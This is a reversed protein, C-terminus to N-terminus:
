AKSAKLIVVSISTGSFENSYVRSWECRMGPLVDKGKASAPLVAVLCGSAKIMTAAHTIHAQWRGESYPPNMVIKDFPEAAYQLFDCEIVDHGKAELVKCHLPSIEVCVTQDQPMLDAIAGQGANPELCLEGPQIDAMEVADLAISEPTPYYQHSVRDPICGSVIIENIIDRANYSFQYKRDVWGGGVYEIVKVAQDTAAKNDNGYPLSCSLEGRTWNLGSLIELVAFPLPKDMMQFEKHKKVPKTRFESPIARPYLSALIQNLRWAIDPHIELHATGKMYVRMRMAGGDVMMWQGSNERAIRVLASTSNWRPEDRGMFKAIVARLDNIHGCRSSSTYYHGDTVGSLIMRKRFGQPCNTVHEHSLARFIGDVKEAFFKQRSLMLDQITARVSEEEFEPTQMKSIQEDWEDRRKQPMVQLVDTMNLAKSWFSANLAKIAGELKFMSQISSYRSNADNGRLFYDIATDMDDAVFEAVSEVKLRMHRYQALLGDILDTRAPAFFEQEEAVLQNM